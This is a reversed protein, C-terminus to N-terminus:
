KVKQATMGNKQAVIGIKQAVFASKFKFKKMKTRDKLTMKLKQFKKNKTRIYV